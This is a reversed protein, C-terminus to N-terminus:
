IIVEFLYRDNVIRPSTKFDGITNNQFYSHLTEEVGYYRLFIGDKNFLVTHGLAISLAGCEAIKKFM